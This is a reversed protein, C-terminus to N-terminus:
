GQEVYPITQPGQPLACIRAQKGRERRLEEITEEIKEVPELHAARVQEDSLYSSKLYVKARMQIQAQVQATWQDHRAYGPSNIKELLKQPSSASALIQKYEGHEPLGDACEAACIIAGGQQVVRAAASMGKVAQYLNMDLPYGSNTTIVADFAAPVARMATRKAFQCASAHAAFLEGAFVNTIQHDRNITVDVSFDVGTQRAIQRIADHIPNGETIGWTSNPHSILPANHLQFITEFSAMGPAVMKPGGSFGAFFHPEVFGTTIRVESEVWRRNLRIPIGHPTQGVDKLSDKDFASHNIIQYNHAVDRGLMRELEEITNARHTGTAIIIAIKEKPVHALEELLVPLVRASPMPRTIDCVAIAVTQDSRVIERLPPKNIPHRLAALLADQENTLGPLYHPEIVTTCEDPL